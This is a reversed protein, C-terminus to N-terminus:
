TGCWFWHAVAVGISHNLFPSAWAGVPGTMYSSVFLIQTTNIPFLAKNRTMYIGVQCAFMEAAAGRKGNFNEPQSVKPAKPAAVEAGTTPVQMPPLPPNQTQLADALKAKAQRHKAEEKNAKKTINALQQQLKAAKSDDM